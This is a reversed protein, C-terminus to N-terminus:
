QYKVFRPSVTQCVRQGSECGYYSCCRSAASRSEWSRTPDCSTARHGCSHRQQTSSPRIRKIYGLRLLSSPCRAHCGCRCGCAHSSQSISKLKLLQVCRKGASCTSNKAKHHPTRPNHITLLVACLVFCVAPCWQHQTSSTILLARSCQHSHQPLAFQTCRQPMHVIKQKTSSTTNSSYMSSLHVSSYM